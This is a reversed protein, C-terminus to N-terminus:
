CKWVLVALEGQYFLHMFAGSQSTVDYTFGKGIVVHFNFGYQKDLSEKILRAAGEINLGSAGSFKDIAGSVIDTMENLTEPVADSHKISSKQMLKKLSAPIPRGAM